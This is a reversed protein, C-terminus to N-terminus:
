YRRKRKSRRSIFLLLLVLLLVIGIQLFRAVLSPDPLSEQAPDTQNTTDKQQDKVSVSNKVAAKRDVRLHIDADNKGLQFFKDTFERNLDKGNDAILSAFSGSLVLLCFAAACRKLLTQTM